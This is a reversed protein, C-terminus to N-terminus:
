YFNSWYGLNQGVEWYLNEGLLSHNRQTATFSFSWFYKNVKHENTLVGEEFLKFIQYDFCLISLEIKKQNAM